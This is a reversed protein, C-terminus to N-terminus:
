RHNKAHWVSRHLHPKFYVNAHAALHTDLGNWHLDPGDWLSHHVKIFDSSFKVCGFFPIMDGREHYGCSCWEWRCNWIEELQPMTPACDHEVNIFKVGEEWREKLYRHYAFDDKLEVFLAIDGLATKTRGNLM